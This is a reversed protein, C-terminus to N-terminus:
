GGGRQGGVKAGRQGGWKAGRQDVRQGGAKAEGKPRGM